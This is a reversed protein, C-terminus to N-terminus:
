SGAIIVNVLSRSFLVNSPMVGSPIIGAAGLGCLANGVAVNPAAPSSLWSHGLRAKVSGDSRVDTLLVFSEGPHGIVGKVELLNEHVITLANM